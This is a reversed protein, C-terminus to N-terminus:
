PTTRRPNTSAPHKTVDIRQRPRSKPDNPRYDKAHKMDAMMYAYLEVTIPNLVLAPWQEFPDRAAGGIECRLVDRGDAVQTRWIRAPVFPGGKVIRRKYFGCQPVDTIPQGPAIMEERHWALPDDLHEVLRENSNDLGFISTASVPAELVRCMKLLHERMPPSAKLEDINIKLDVDRRLTTLKLYLRAKNGHKKLEAKVRPFRCRDINDLVGELSGFRRVLRAAIEPGCGPIGPIGDAADGSLAQVDAVHAPPVGFKKEIDAALLRVKKMPDVIEIVGDFVLQGFDKDSSVITSRMGVAAARTVLTAIVDDAEFGIKEVPVLGLAEAAHRMFPMQDRLEESRAPARNAKYAPFLDHRFNKGPADFVAVAHTPKDAEAAGLMRWLMAMFGLVAGTPQGDSDRYMSPFSYFSRFAFGSADVVLLHQETM